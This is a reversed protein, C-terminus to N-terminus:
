RKGSNEEMMKTLKSTETCKAKTTDLEIFSEPLALRVLIM